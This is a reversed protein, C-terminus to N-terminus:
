ERPPYCQLIVNHTIAISFTGCCLWTYTADSVLFDLEGEGGGGGGGVCVCVCLPKMSNQCLSVKAASLNEIKLSAQALGMM